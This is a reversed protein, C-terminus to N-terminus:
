AGATPPPSQGSAPPAPSPLIITFESGEGVTSAVEVRGRHVQVIHKVIALGLGTGGLKRSRAKDVRYFREFLRPVNEAPIGCGRDRVRIAMEGGPMAVAEVDVAQKEDSYKVANDILNMVAQELLPANIRAHLCPACAKRLRIKKEEARERCFDIATDLVADLPSDELPLDSGEATQEIRSLSLIDEIIACLRDSHKSIIGLFRALDDKDRMAGDLLAEVSGKIATLPTKIEHSVNAVFDRRVEELQRIRTIDNLVILAGIRSDARDKLATGLAQFHRNERGRILFEREAAQVGNGLIADIFQQLEPIRVVERFGRGRMDRDSGLLAQAARNVSIVRGERDFAVVGETMSTLIAELEQNQATIQGLRARLEEAMRDVSRALDDLEGGTNLRLRDDLRGDAFNACAERVIQIPRSIRRAILLSCVAALLVVAIGTALIRRNIAALAQDMSAISTSARLVASPREAPGLPLAVYLYREAMTPSYRISDGRMGQMAAVIEPRGAHNDMREPLENTDGLVVGDARIVTLRTGTAGGMERCLTQLAVTDGREVLDAARASLFRIKAELDGTRREQYFTKFAVVIHWSALALAVVVTAMCYLFLQIFIKRPM